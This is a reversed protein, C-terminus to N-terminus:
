QYLVSSTFLVYLNRALSTSKNIKQMKKNHFFIWAVSFRERHCVPPPTRTFVLGAQLRPEILFWVQKGGPDSRMCLLPTDGERPQQTPIHSCRRSSIFTRRQFRGDRLRAHPHECEVEVHREDVDVGVVTSDPWSIHQLSPSFVTRSREVRAVPPQQGARWNNSLGVDM